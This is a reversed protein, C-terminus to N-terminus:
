NSVQLQSVKVQYPSVFVENREKEDLVMGKLTNDILDRLDIERGFRALMSKKLESKLLEKKECIQKIKAM